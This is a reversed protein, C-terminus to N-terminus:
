DNSGGIPASAVEKVKINPGLDRILNRQEIAQTDAICQEYIPNNKVTERLTEKLITEKSVREMAEKVIKVGYNGVIKELREEFERNRRDEEAVKEKFETEAKEYGAKHGEDRANDIMNNVWFYAAIAILIPLIWKWNAAIFKGIGGLGLRLALLAGSFM